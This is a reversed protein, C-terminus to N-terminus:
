TGAALAASLAAGAAGAWAGLDATVVEYARPPVLPTLRELEARLPELLLDGAAAVGGGIVVKEPQLVTVVNALGHALHGGARQFARVSMEDGARAADFAAAVTPQGAAAAIAEACAFAELCGRNGCGCVPGNRDLVQHGIEGAGQDAGLHLRGDIIVVGGVGTGLVVGIVTRAGRAAGLHLEALGFSRADNILVTPLGSAQEIPGRVPLGPWEGPINPILTARGEADFLGPLTIGVGQIESVEAVHARVIDAMAAITDAAGTRVTPVTSRSVLVGDQLVVSKTMTGGLDVGLWTGRIM